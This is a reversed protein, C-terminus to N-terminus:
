NELQALIELSRCFFMQRFASQFPRGRRAGTEGREMQSPITREFVANQPQNLKITRSWSPNSELVQLQLGGGLVRFVLTSGKGRGLM